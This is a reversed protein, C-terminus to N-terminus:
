TNITIKCVSDKGGRKGIEFMFTFDENVSDDSRSAGGYSRSYKYRCILVHGARMVESDDPFMVDMCLLCLYAAVEHSTQFGQEVFSKVSVEKRILAVDLLGISDMTKM